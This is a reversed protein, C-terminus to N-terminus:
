DNDKKEMNEEDCMQIYQGLATHLAELSSTSLNLSATQMVSGERSLEGCIYVSLQSNTRVTCNEKDVSTAIGHITITTGRETLAVVGPTSKIIMKGGIDM